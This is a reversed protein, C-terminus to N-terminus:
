HASDAWPPVLPTDSTPSCPRHTVLLLAPLLFEGETAVLSAWGKWGPLRRRSTHCDMPTCLAPHGTIESCEGPLMWGECSRCGGSSDNRHCRQHFTFWKQYAPMARTGLRLPRSGSTPPSPCGACGQPQCFALSLPVAAPPRTPHQLVDWLTSHSVWTESLAKLGFHSIHCSQCLVAGDVSIFSGPLDPLVASSYFHCRGGM